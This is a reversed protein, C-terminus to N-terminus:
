RSTITMTAENCTMLPGHPRNYITLDMQETQANIACALQEILRMAELSTLKLSISLKGLYMKDVKTTGFYKRSSRNPHNTM